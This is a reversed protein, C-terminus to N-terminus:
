RCTRFNPATLTLIFFSLYTLLLKFDIAPYYKAFHLSVLESLCNKLINNLEPNGEKGIYM